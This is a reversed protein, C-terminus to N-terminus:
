IKRKNRHKLRSQRARELVEGRDIRRDSGMGGQEKELERLYGTFSRITVHEFLVVVPIERKLGEELKGRLQVAKLSNGGLEFFNDCSGVKGVQLVEKWMGAIKIELQTEPEVYTQRLDPRYEGPEPLAKRDIKGNGTMPIRELQVFFSPIMYDPLKGSLYERCVGEGAGAIYACLYPEGNKDRKLIVVAERIDKHESLKSEIEGLEIRFGRIKVLHDIRGLYEIDGDTL